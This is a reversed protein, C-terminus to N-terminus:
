HEKIIEPIIKKFEEISDYIGVLFPTVYGDGDEKYLFAGYM